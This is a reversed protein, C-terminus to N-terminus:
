KVLYEDGKRRHRKAKITEIKYEPEGEVKVNTALKIDKSAPELLSIHFVPHFRTDKPLQLRYNYDSLKKDIKFPSIKKWNLKDNPRKTKINRQVVYIKDGEKLTPKKLRKKDAYHKIRNNLFTLEKQLERHLDHLKQTTKTSQEMNITTPTM